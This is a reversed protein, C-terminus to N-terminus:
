RRRSSGPDRMLLTWEKRRLVRRPSASRFTRAAGGCRAASPAVSAAAMVHDAFTRSFFLITGGLLALSLALVAGLAAAEGLIARAPWWLFSDPGPALAMFAESGLVSFRSLTDTSLIAAIQLGIVFAAGIM